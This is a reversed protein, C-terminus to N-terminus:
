EGLVGRKICNREDARLMSWLYYTLDADINGGEDLAGGDSVGSPGYTDWVTEAPLLEAPSLSCVVAQASWATATGLSLDSLDKRAQAVLESAAKEVTRVDCARLVRVALAASVSRQGSHSNEEKGGDGLVFAELRALTDPLDCLKESVLLASGAVAYSFRWAARGGDDRTGGQTVAAIETTVQGTTITERYTQYLLREIPGLSSPTELRRLTTDNGWRAM